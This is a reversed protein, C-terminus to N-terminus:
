QVTNIASIFAGSAVAKLFSMQSDVLSTGIVGGEKIHEIMQAKSFSQGNGVFLKLENPLQSEIRAIVLEEIEKSYRKERM